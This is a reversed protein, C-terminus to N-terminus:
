SPHMMLIRLSTMPGRLPYTRILVVPLLAPFPPLLLLLPPVVRQLRPSLQSPTVPPFLSRCFLSLSRLRFPPLLFPERQLFLHRPLCLYLRALGKPILVRKELYRSQPLPPLKLLLRIYLLPPLLCQLYWMPGM